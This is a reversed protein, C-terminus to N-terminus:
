GEIPKEESQMQACHLKSRLIKLKIIELNHEVAIELKTENADIWKLAAIRDSLLNSLRDIEIDTLTVQYEM